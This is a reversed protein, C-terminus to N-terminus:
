KGSFCVKGNFLKYYNTKVRTGNFSHFFLVLKVDTRPILNNLICALLSRSLAAWVNDSIATFQKTDDFKITTDEDHKLNVDWAVDVSPYQFIIIKNM